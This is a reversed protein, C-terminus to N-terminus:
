AEKKEEIKGLNPHELYGTAGPFGFQGGMGVIPLMTLIVKRCIACYDLGMYQVTADGGCRYCPRKKSLFKFIGIM